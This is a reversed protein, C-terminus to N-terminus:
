ASRERRLAQALNRFESRYNRMDAEYRQVAVPDKQAGVCAWRLQELTSLRKHLATFLVYEAITM